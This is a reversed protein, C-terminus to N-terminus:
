MRITETMHTNVILVPRPCTRIVKDTVSGLAWRKIGSYGHTAMVILDAQHQGAAEVIKEAAYGNVVASSASPAITIVTPPPATVTVGVSRTAEIGAQDAPGNKLVYVVIVKGDYMERIAFGCGALLLKRYDQIGADSINGFGTHGDPIAQTFDRIAKFFALADHNKQADAVRPALQDHLAKWDVAIKRSGVGLFGGFDIVAARVVGERDVIADVIRGMNEDAASRVERGLIGHADRAGIITVSVPPAPQKTDQKPVDQVTSRGSTESQAWVGASAALAVALVAVFWRARM